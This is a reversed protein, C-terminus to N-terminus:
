RCETDSVAIAGYEIAEGNGDDIIEGKIVREIGLRRGRYVEDRLGYDPGDVVSGHQADFASNGKEAAIHLATEQFVNKVNFSSTKQLLLDWYEILNNRAMPTAGDEGEPEVTWDLESNWEDAHDFEDEIASMATPINVSAALHLATNGLHNRVDADADHKLLLAGNEPSLISRSAYHLPTNGQCDVVNMNACKELLHEVIDGKFGTAAFHLPIRLFGDSTNIDINALTPFETKFSPEDPGGEGFRGKTHLPIMGLLVKVYIGNQSKAVNHLPSSGEISLQFAGHHLLVCLLEEREIFWWKKLWGHGHLIEVVTLGDGRRTHVLAGNELLFRTAEIQYTAVSTHLPTTGNNDIAEVKAGRNIYLQLFLTNAERRYGKRYYRKGYVACHLPSRGKYDRAEIDSGLDLLLKAIREEGKYSAVHLATLGTSEDIGNLSAGNELLLRITREHGGLAACLLPPLLGSNLGYTLSYERERIYDQFRIDVGARLLDRILVSDGLSAAMCLARGRMRTDRDMFAYGAFPDLELLTEKTAMPDLSEDYLGVLRQFLENTFTYLVPQSTIETPPHSM